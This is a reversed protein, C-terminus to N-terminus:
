FARRYGRVSGSTSLGRGTAGPSSVGLGLPPPILAHLPWLLQGRGKRWEARGRVSDRGM